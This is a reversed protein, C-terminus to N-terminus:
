MEAEKCSVKEEGCTTWVKRVKEVMERSGLILSVEKAM